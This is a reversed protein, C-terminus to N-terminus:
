FQRRRALFTTSGRSYARPLGCASVPVVAQLRVQTIKILSRFLRMVDRRSHKMGLGKLDLIVNQRTLEGTGRAREELHIQTYEMQHIHFVTLEEETVTALLQTTQVAGARFIHIPRGQQDHGYRVIMPFLPLIKSAHPFDSPKMNRELITTRIADIGNERRWSLMGRVM